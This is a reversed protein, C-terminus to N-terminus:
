NTSVPSVNLEVHNIKHHCKEHLSPLVTCKTVLDPKDTIVLDICTEAISTVHTAENVLQNLCNDSIIDYNKVKLM